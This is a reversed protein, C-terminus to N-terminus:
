WAIHTIHSPDGGPALVIGAHYAQALHGAVTFLNSLPAGLSM